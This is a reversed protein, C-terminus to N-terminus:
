FSFQLIMYGTEKTALLKNHTHNVTMCKPHISIVSILYLNQGNGHKVTVHVASRIKSDQCFNDGKM